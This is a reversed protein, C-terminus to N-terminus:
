AIRTPGLFQTLREHLDIQDRLECEWVYLLEWGESKLAIEHQRDREVNRSLKPHWYDPNSRPRKGARCDAADHQHWFCGHVFILKRRSRFVIDPTGPLGKVHVRYRYGARHLLRRVILEAKTDKSRILRM